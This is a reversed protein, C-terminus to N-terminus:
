AVLQRTLLWISGLVANTSLVAYREGPVSGLVTPLMAVVVVAFVTFRM